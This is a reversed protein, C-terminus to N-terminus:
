VLDLVTQQKKKSEQHSQKARKFFDAEWTVESTNVYRSYTFGPIIKFAKNQHHKIITSGIAFGLGVPVANGIQKYQDIIAGCIEWNDPFQQIRKYEQVSLPRDEEPHGLETAPMAPHTVVTPSPKNWALRRFFGTKGGGLHYSNGLAILQIDKPLDKWYQGEKLMRFYVLRKESFNVYEAEKTNLGIVADKFTRWPKLNFKPDNSHTPELHPVPKKLRTCIMVVRERVQPTGFNASNYLNFTVTYGGLELKKKIYYLSSGAINKYDVPFSQTVEDNIDITMTSSLLGRVNEIIAYKPRATLLLDIFKLFVNGRVDEFGMRKGATSFAQCPPGGVILDIEKYSKLGSHKLIEEYSYDRIDGILGVKKDNTIITERSANDIECALLVNIGAKELGIDLGMAGSFFSLCNLKTESKGRTAIRDEITKKKM